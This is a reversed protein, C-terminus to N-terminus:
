KSKIHCESCLIPGKSKQLHCGKCRLHYVKTLNLTDKNHKTLHCQSCKKDESSEDENKIGNKYVHHCINCESINAIENHSDHLFPVPPRQHMFYANDHLLKIDEQCYSNLVGFCILVIFIITISKMSKNIM